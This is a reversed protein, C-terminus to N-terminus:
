RRLRRRRGRRPSAFLLKYVGYIAGLAGVALLPSIRRGLIDVYWGSVEKTLAFVGALGYTKAIVAPPQAAPPTALPTNGPQDQPVAPADNDFLDAADGAVDLAQDAVALGEKIDGWADDDGAPPLDVSGGSFSGDPNQTPDQANGPNTYEPFWSTM